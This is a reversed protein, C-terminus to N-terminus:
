PVSRSDACTPFDILSVITEDFSFLILSNEGPAPILSRPETNLIVIPTSVIALSYFGLKHYLYLYKPYCIMYPFHTLQYPQQIWRCFVLGQRNRPVYIKKVSLIIILRCVFAYRHIHAYSCIYIEALISSAEVLFSLLWVPM